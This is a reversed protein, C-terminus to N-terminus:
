RSLSEIQLLAKKKFLSEKLMQVDLYQVTEYEARSLLIALQQLFARHETWGETTGYGHDVLNRIADPQMLPSVFSYLTMTASSATLGFVDQYVAYHFKRLLNLVAKAYFLVAASFDAEPMDEYYVEMDVAAEIQDIVTGPLDTYPDEPIELFKFIDTDEEEEVEEAKQNMNNKAQDMMNEAMGNLQDKEEESMSNIMQSIKSFDFDTFKM